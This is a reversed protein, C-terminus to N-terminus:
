KLTHGEDLLVTNQASAAAAGLLSRKVRKLMSKYHYRSTSLSTTASSVSITTNDLFLAASRDDDVMSASSSSYDLSSCSRRSMQKLKMLNWKETFSFSTSLATLSSSSPSNNVGFKKKNCQLVSPKPAPWSNHHLSSSNNNNSSHDITDYSSSYSCSSSDNTTSTSCCTTIWPLFSNVRMLELVAEAADDFIHLHCNGQSYNDLITQRMDCPINIEQPSNPRIYLHIMKECLQHQDQKRCEEYYDQTAIWFALNEICYSQNLYSAFERFVDSTPDELISELSPVIQDTGFM